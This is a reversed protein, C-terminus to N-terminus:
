EEDLNIGFDSKKLLPFLRINNDLCNKEAGEQRDVIVICDVCTGGASRIVKAANIISQGSVSVDEILICNKDKCNGIIQSQTGRNHKSSRIIIQPINLSISLTTAVPIGGIAISAIRDYQKFFHDYAYGDYNFINAGYNYTYENKNFIKRKIENLIDPNLSAEKIDIFLRSKTGQENIIFPEEDKKRIKIIGEKILMEKLNM